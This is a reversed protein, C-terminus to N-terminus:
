EKAEGEAAAAAPTAPTEPGDQRKGYVNVVNYDNDYVLRVGDPLAMDSARVFGGVDLPSVDITISEPIRDYRCSIKVERRIVRLRGGLVAGKPRGIPNVPVMVEIEDEIPVAYFDVHLIQRSVPHRQVERVLCPIAAGGGVKVAVVTNRNQTEKFVEVLRVPDIEIAQPQTKPGYVVAPVVGRARSKRNRGKGEVPRSSVELTPEM